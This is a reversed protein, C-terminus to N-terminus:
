LKWFQLTFALAGVALAIGGGLRMQAASVRNTLRRIYPAVGLLAGFGIAFVIGMVDVHNLDFLMVILVAAAGGIVGYMDFSIRVRTQSVEALSSLLTQVIVYGCLFLLLLILSWLQSLMYHPEQVAQVILGCVFAVLVIPWLAVILAIVVITLVIAWVLGWVGGAVWSNVYQGMIWGVVVAGLFALSSVVSTSDFHDFLSGLRRHVVYLFGGIWDAVLGVALGALLGLVLAVGFGYLLEDLFSPTFAATLGALPGDRMVWVLPGGTQLWQSYVLVSAALGVSVGIVVSKISSTIVSLGIKVVAKGEAVDPDSDASRERAIKPSHQESPESPESPEPRRQLGVGLGFGLGAGAGLGLWLGMVVLQNVNLVTIFQALTPKVIWYQRMLALDDGSRRLGLAFGSITGLVALPAGLGLGFTLRNTLGVLFDPAASGMLGRALYVVGVLAVVVGLIALSGGVFVDM